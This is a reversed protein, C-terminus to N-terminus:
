GAKRCVILAEVYDCRYRGPDDAVREELERFFDARLGHAREEGELAFARLM